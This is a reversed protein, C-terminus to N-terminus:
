LLRRITNQKKIRVKSTEVNVARADGGRNPLLLGKLSAVCTILVTRPGRDCLGQDQEPM